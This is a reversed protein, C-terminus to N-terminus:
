SYPDFFVLYIGIIFLFYVKVDIADPNFEFIIESKKNSLIIGRPTLCRFIDGDPNEAKWFFEYNINTPNVIYFRKINKGRIGCSRFEIVKTNPELILVSGDSRENIRREDLIYNSDDLEFHCFPRLSTANLKCTFSTQDKQLNPIECILNCSYDGVETPRFKVTIITNEGSSIFGNVPFVAFYQDQKELINVGNEEHISFSFKMMVKGPNKLPFRFVRTQFMLTSKFNIATVDTEYQSYDAFGSIFISYDTLQSILETTPETLHEVVKKGQITRDGALWKIVKMRDDWDQDLNINGLIRVKSVKIVVPLRQIDLPQKPAFSVTIERDKDKSPRIHFISPSFSFDPMEAFAVRLAEQSHNKIKFTISKSEGIFCDNFIIENDSDDPLSEITLDDIYGEGSLQICSDEFNNDAIKLRLEAELKRVSSPKFKVDINRVEQPKLTYYANTSACEFDDSERVTWELKFRAPIIGDNRLVLYM